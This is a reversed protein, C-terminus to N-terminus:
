KSGSSNEKIIENIYYSRKQRWLYQKGTKFYCADLFLLTKEEARVTEPICSEGLIGYFEEVTFDFGDHNGMLCVTKLPSQNIVASCKKLNVVEQVHNGEKDTLDGLCIVLDCNEALFAEYANRIKGLSQSNYRVGCTVEQTSYHSDTFIGIKM